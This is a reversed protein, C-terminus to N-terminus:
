WDESAASVVDVYDEPEPVGIAPYKANHYKLLAALIQKLNITTVTAGSMVDVDELTDLKVNVLKPMFGEEIEERTVGAPMKPSDGWYDFSVKRTKGGKESKAVEVFLMSIKNISDQRCTCSTYAIQYRVYEQAEFEWGIWAPLDTPTGFGDVHVYPLILETGAVSQAADAKTAPGGVCSSLLLLAIVAVVFLKKM